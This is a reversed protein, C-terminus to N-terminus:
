KKRARGTDSIPETPDRSEEQQSPWSPQSAHEALLTALSRKLMRGLKQDSIKLIARVREPGLAAIAGAVRHVVMDSGTLTQAKEARRRGRIPPSMEKYTRNM